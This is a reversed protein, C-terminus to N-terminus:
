KTHFFILDMQESPALTRLQRGRKNRNDENNFYSILWQDFEDAKEETDDLYGHELIPNTNNKVIGNEENSRIGTKHKQRRAKAKKQNETLLSESAIRKKTKRNVSLVVCNFFFFYTIM